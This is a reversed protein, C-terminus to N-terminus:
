SLVWVESGSTIDCSQELQQLIDCAEKREYEYTTIDDCPRKMEQYHYSSNLSFINVYTRCKSVFINLRNVCASVFPMERATGITARHRTHEFWQSYAVIM